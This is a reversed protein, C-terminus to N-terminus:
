NNPCHCEIVNGSTDTVKTTCNVPCDEELDCGAVQLFFLISLIVLATLVAGNKAGKEETKMVGGDRRKESVAGEYVM